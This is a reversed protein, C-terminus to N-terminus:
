QDPDISLTLLRLCAFFMGGYFIICKHVDTVLVTRHKVIKGRLVNM